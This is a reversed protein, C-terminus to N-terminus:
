TTSEGITCDWKLRNSYSGLTQVCNVTQVQARYYDITFDKTAKFKEHEGCSIMLASVVEEEEDEPDDKPQEDWSGTCIGEWQPTWAQSSDYAAAQVFWTGVLAAMIGLFLGWTPMFFRLNLIKFM